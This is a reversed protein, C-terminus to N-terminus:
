PCSEHKRVHKELTDVDKLRLIVDKGQVFYCVMCKVQNFKGNM